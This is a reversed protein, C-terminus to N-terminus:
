KENKSHVNIQHMSTHSQCLRFTYYHHMLTLQICIGCVFCVALRTKLEQLALPVEKQEWGSHMVLVDAEFGKLAQTLGVRSLFSRIAADWYQPLPPSPSPTPPKLPPKSAAQEAQSAYLPSAHLSQLQTYAQPQYPPIPHASYTIAPSYPHQYEPGYQSTNVPWPTTQWNAAYNYYAHAAPYTQLPFSPGPERAPIAVKSPPSQSPGAASSSPGQAM